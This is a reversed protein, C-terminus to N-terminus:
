APIWIISLSSPWYNIQHREARHAPAVSPNPGQWPYKSNLCTCFKCYQTENMLDHISFASTFTYQCDISDALASTGKAQCGTSGSRSHSIRYRLEKIKTSIRIPTVEEQIITKSLRNLGCTMGHEPLCPPQDPKICTQQHSGRTKM